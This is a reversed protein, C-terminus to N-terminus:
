ATPRGSNWEELIRVVAKQVTEAARKIDWRALDRDEVLNSIGRVELWPVGHLSAVQAVAAGEMNECLGHYREELERARLATGTCTSLTVFRGSHVRNSNASPFSLLAQQAARIPSEPAPFSNYLVSSATAALPIGIFRTDKFGQTTLVGEDGAIEETALAVDGIRAGSSIYAGGIGFVILVEPAYRTLLITAAHAANVKGMGAACLVVERGAITGQMLSRSGITCTRAITAEAALLGLEAQVSSLLGIM